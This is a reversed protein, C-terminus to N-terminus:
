AKEHISSGPYFSCTGFFLYDQSHGIHDSNAMGSLPRANPSSQGTHREVPSMIFPHSGRELTAILDGPQTHQHSLVMKGNSDLFLQPFNLASDLTNLPLARRSGITGGHADFRFRLLGDLEQTPCTESSVPWPGDLVDTLFIKAFILWYSLHEEETGLMKLINTFFIADSIEVVHPRCAGILVRLFSQLRAATSLHEESGTIPTQLNLSRVVRSVHRGTSPLSEGPILPESQGAELPRKTYWFSFQFEVNASCGGNVNMTAAKEYALVSTREKGEQLLGQAHDMRNSFSSFRHAFKPRLGKFAVAYTQVGHSEWKGYRYITRLTLPLHIGGRSFDLIVEELPKEYNPSLFKNWAIMSHTDTGVHLLAFLKDRPDSALFSSTQSFQDIFVLENRKYTANIWMQMFRSSTSSLLKRSERPAELESAELTLYSITSHLKSWSIELGKLSLVALPL